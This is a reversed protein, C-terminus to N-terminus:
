DKLERAPEPTQTPPAATVSIALEAKDTAAAKSSSSSTSSSSSSSSSTKPTITITGTTHETTKKFRKKDPYKAIALRAQAAEYHRASKDAQEKDQQMKAKAVNSRLLLEPFDRDSADKAM